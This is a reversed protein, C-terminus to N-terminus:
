PDDAPRPRLTKTLVVIRDRYGHRHYFDLAGRNDGLVEVEMLEAGCARAHEEAREVLRGGLGADRHSAAVYLDAVVGLQDRREDPEDREQRGFVCVYGVLHGEDEAVFFTGSTRGATEALYGYYRDLIEQGPALGEDLPRLTEHLELVMQRVRDRDDDRAERITTMPLGIKGRMGRGTAVDLPLGPM